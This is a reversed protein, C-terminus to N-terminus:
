MFTKVITIAGSVIGIILSTIELFFKLTILQKKIKENDM